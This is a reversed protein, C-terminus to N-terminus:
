HAPGSVPSPRDAGTELDVDWTMGKIPFGTPSTFRGLHRLRGIARLEIIRGELLSDSTYSASVIAQGAYANLQVTDVIDDVVRAGYPRWLTSEPGGGILGIRSTREPLLALAPAFVYSYHAYHAYAAQARIATANGPFRSVAQETLPGAPFLPRSPTLVLAVATTASTVVACARWLRNRALREAVAFRLIGAIPLFYFPALLRATADSALLAMWAVTAVVGAAIVWRAPLTEDTRRVPRSARRARSAGAAVLCSLGLLTIGLGLGSREEQPLDSVFLDFWTFQTALRHAIPAPVLTAARHSIEVAHPLFPPALNVFAGQLTNGILGSLPDGPRLGTTNGPDGAWDGTHRLNFTATPAFSVGLAAAIAVATLVPRGLTLRWSPALAVLCPLLLPLNSAKVGSVLAAAIGSACLALVSRRVRAVAAFYLTALLLTLAVADNATGGAQMAYGPASPLLWMWVWATHSRVGLARLVGFCAGPLLAFGTLNLLFFARDSHACVHMASFVWEQVTGAYNMRDIETTIWHWRGAALWHLVRPFRYQLFDYNNPVYIAGGVGALVLQIGFLPPLPKAFRRCVRAVVLRWRPREWGLALAGFPLVCLVATVAYGTCTLWGGISLLWGALCTAAISGVWISLARM